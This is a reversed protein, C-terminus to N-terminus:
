LIVFQFVILYCNADVLIALSFFVSFVYEQYPHLVVPVRICQQYPRIPVIMNSFQQATNGFAFMCTDYSGAMRSGLINLLFTYIYATVSMCMMVANSM